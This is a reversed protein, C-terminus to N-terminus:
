LYRVFQECRSLGAEGKLWACKCVDDVQSRGKQTLEIPRNYFPRLTHTWLLSSRQGFSCVIVVVVLLTSYTNSMKLTSDYDSFQWFIQRSSSLRWCRRVTQVFSSTTWSCRSCKPAAYGVFTYSSQCWNITINVGLFIRLNQICMQPWNNCFTEPILRKYELIVTCWCVTWLKCSVGFNFLSIGPIIQGSTLETEPSLYLLFHIAYSSFSSPSVWTIFVRAFSILAIHLIQLDSGRPYIRFRYADV